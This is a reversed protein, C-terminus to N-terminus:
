SVNMYVTCTLMRGCNVYTCYFDGYFCVIVVINVVCNGVTAVTYVAAPAATFQATCLGAPSQFQHQQQAAHWVLEHHQACMFTPARAPAVLLQLQRRHAQMSAAASGRPLATCQLGAQVALRLKHM